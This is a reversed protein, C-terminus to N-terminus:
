WLARTTLRVQMMRPTIPIPEHKMDQEEKQAEADLRVKVDEDDAKKDGSYPLAGVAEGVAAAMAAEMSSASPAVGSSSSSSAAAMASLTSSTGKLVVSAYADVDGATMAFTASAVHDSRQAALM